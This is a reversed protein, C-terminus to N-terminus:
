AFFYNPTKGLAEAIAALTGVKPERKGLEVNILGGISIGARNALEQQSWKKKNRAKIITNPKFNM